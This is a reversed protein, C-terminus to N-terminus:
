AAREASAAFLRRAAAQGRVWKRDTQAARERLAEPRGVVGFYLLGSGTMMREWAYPDIGARVLLTPPPGALSGAGVKLARGTQSWM